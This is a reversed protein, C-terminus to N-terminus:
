NNSSSEDMNGRYGNSCSYRDFGNRLWTEGILMLAAAETRDVGSAFVNLAGYSCTHSDSGLILRGPIAFGREYVVQHCIGEGVDFFNDLQHKKVYERVKKHGIANKETAAPTVHDLVIISLGPDIVGYKDLEDGIKGIIAATNDHTLLHDPKVTVIQGVETTENGSKKALVKQAFTMGM